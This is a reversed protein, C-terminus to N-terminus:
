GSDHAGGEGAWLTTTGAGHEVGLMTAMTPPLDGHIVIILSLVADTNHADAPTESAPAIGAHCDLYGQLAGLLDTGLYAQDIQLVVPKHRAIPLFVFAGLIRPTGLILTGQLERPIGPLAPRPPRAGM